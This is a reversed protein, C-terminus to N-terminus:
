DMEIHGVMGLAGAVQPEDTPEPLQRHAAELYRACLPEELAITERNITVETEREILRQSHEALIV